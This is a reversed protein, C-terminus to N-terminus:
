RWGLRPRRATPPPRSSSPSRAQRPSRPPSRTPWRRSPHEVPVDAVLVASAGFEGLAAVAADDCGAGVWVAVPTGLRRALTLLESTSKKVTGDVADVLVLVDSM